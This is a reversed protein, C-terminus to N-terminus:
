QQPEPILSLGEEWVQLAEDYREEDELQNGREALEDLRAKIKETLVEFTAADAKESLSIEM